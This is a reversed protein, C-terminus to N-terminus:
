GDIFLKIVILYSIFLKRLEEIRLELICKEIISIRLRAMIFM